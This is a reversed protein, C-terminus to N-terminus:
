WEQRDSKSTQCIHERLQSRSMYLNTPVSYTDAQITWHCSVQKNHLPTQTWIWPTINIVKEPHCGQSGLNLDPNEYNRKPNHPEKCFVMFSKPIIYILNPFLNQSIRKRSCMLGFNNATRSPWKGGALWGPKWTPDNRYGEAENTHCASNKTCLSM